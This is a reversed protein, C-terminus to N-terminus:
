RGTFFLISLLCAQLLAVLVVVPTPMVVRVSLLGLLVTRKSTSPSSFAIAAAGAGVAAAFVVVVDV